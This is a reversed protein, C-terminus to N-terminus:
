APRFGYSLRLTRLYGNVGGWKDFREGRISLFKGRPDFNQKYGIDVLFDSWSRFGVEADFFWILPFLKERPTKPWLIQSADYCRIPCIAKVVGIQKIGGDVGITPAILVLDGVEMRGFVREAGNPVGWCNFTGHPFAAHLDVDSAFYYGEPASRPLKSVVEAFSRRRTVTYGIDINGPKGVHALFANM